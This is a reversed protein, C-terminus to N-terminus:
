RSCADLYRSGGITRVVWETLHERLGLDKLRKNVEGDQAGTLPHYTFGDVEGSPSYQSAKTSNEGNTGGNFVPKV